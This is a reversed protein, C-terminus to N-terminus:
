APLSVPRDAPSVSVFVRSSNELERAVRSCAFVRAQEAEGEAREHVKAARGPREEEEM